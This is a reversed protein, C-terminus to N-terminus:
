TDMSCYCIWVRRVYVLLHRVYGPLAHHHCTHDFHM